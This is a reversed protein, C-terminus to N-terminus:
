HVHSSSAAPRWRVFVHFSHPAGYPLQLDDSIRYVTVDAGVGARGFRGNPLERVYGITGAAVRSIPHFHRFGQPHLSGLGLIDKAAVEGRGYISDRARAQWTWELLYGDLIGHIERNQGWAITAAFPKSRMSGDFEISATLRTMDFPDYSEPAHLHAGSM